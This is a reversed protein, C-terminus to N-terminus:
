HEVNEQTDLERMIRSVIHEIEWVAAEELGDCEVKSAQRIQGKHYISYEGSIPDIICKPPPWAEENNAFPYQGVIPCVGNTLVGEYMGVNFLYDYSSIPPLFPEDSVQRYIGVSADRYVRGYAYRGDPLDIQFVDGLAPKIKRSLKKRM